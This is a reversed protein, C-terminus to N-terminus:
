ATTERKKLEIALRIKWYPNRGEMLDYLEKLSANLNNEKAALISSIEDNSILQNIEIKNELAARSLHEHITSVSFGRAIAIDEVSVGRNFENASFIHSPIKKTKEKKSPQSSVKERKKRKPQGTMREKEGSPYKNQLFRFLQDRKQRLESVNFQTTIEEGLLISKALGPLRALQKLKSILMEILEDLVEPANMEWIHSFIFQFELVASMDHWVMESYYGCGRDIRSIYQEWARTQMLMNLQSRYTLLNKSESALRTQDIESLGQYNQRILELENLKKEIERFDLTADVTTILFEIQRDKLQNELLTPAKKATSFQRIEEDTFVSRAEIRANLLLGDLSRLRSLAVYTQGAAFASSVDIIAKDFTLGQSKHVTIAWALRLPFQMFSGTTTEKQQHTDPDVEYKKNEWTYSEIRHLVGDEIGRIGIEDAACFEVVGIKGNYYRGAGSTDNRIFMVQAGKKLVLTEETPHSGKPFDGEIKAIYKKEEGPLSKLSDRNIQEAKSNHTTIHILGAKEEEKLEGCVKQNLMELDQPVVKNERFHNLIQIFNEDQQRYVKEFELFVYPAKKLAISEYFWASKYFPSLLYKEEDRVVPPLQYLDGILLLQVGGFPQHNGRITRLRFDIADLIDARLMSVEDIVLLEIGKIVARKSAAIFHRKLLAEEDYTPSTMYEVPMQKAPIFTGM